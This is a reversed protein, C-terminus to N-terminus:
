KRLEELQKTSWIIRMRAHGTITRTLGEFMNLEQFTIDAPGRQIRRAECGIERIKREIVRKVEKNRSTARQMEREADSALMALRKATHSQVWDIHQQIRGNECSNMRFEKQLIKSAVFAPDTSGFSFAIVLAADLIERTVNVYSPRFAKFQLKWEYMSNHGYWNSAHCVDSLGPAIVDLFKNRLAEVSIWGVIAAEEIKGWIIVEDLSKKKLYVKDAQQLEPLSNGFQRASFTGTEECARTSIMYITGNGSHEVFLIQLARMLSTTTSIWGTRTWAPNPKENLKKGQYKDLHLLTEEKLSVGTQFSMHAPNSIDELTPIDDMLYDAYKAAKIGACSNIGASGPGATRFVYEPMGDVTGYRPANQEEKCEFPEFRLQDTVNVELADIGKTIEDMIIM